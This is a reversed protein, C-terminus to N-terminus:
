LMPLVKLLTPKKAAELETQAHRLPAFVTIIAMLAPYSHGDDDHERHLKELLSKVKDVADGQQLLLMSRLANESDLFRKMCDYTTCFRTCVEQKLLCGDPLKENLGAHKITSIISKVITLNESIKSRGIVDETISSKMCTNLQHSICGVWKHSFPVKSPSISAGFVKPMTAACDTVATFRTEFEAISRGTSHKVAKNINKRINEATESDEHQFFALLQTRMQLKCTGTLPSRQHDLYHLVLNYYKKDTREDKAGDCCMGGGFRFVKDLQEKFDEKLKKSLDVVGKRVTNGCPLIKHIDLISSSSYTQGLKILGAALTRFGPKKAFSFPLKDVSSAIACFEIIDRKRDASVATITTEKKRDRNHTEMHRHFSANGVSPTFRRLGNQLECSGSLAYNCIAWGVHEKTNVKCLISFEKYIPARDQWRPCFTKWPVIHFLCEESNMIQKVVMEAERQTKLEYDHQNSEAVDAGHAGPSQDVRQKVFRETLSSQFLTRKNTM